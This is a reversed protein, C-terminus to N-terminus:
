MVCLCEVTLSNQLLCLSNLSFELEALVQTLSNLSFELEALLQTPYNLSFELEALLQTQWRGGFAGGWRKTFAERFLFKKQM